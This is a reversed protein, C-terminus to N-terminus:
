QKRLGSWHVRWGQGKGGPQGGCLSIVTQSTFAVQLSRCNDPYSLVRGVRQGKGSVLCKWMRREEGKALVGETLKTM